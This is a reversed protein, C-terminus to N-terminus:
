VDLDRLCRGGLVSSDRVASPRLHKVQRQKARRRAPEKQRTLSRPDLATREEEVYWALVSM